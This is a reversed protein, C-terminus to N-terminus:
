LGNEFVDRPIKIRKNDNKLSQPDPKLLLNSIILMALWQLYSIKATFLEELLLDYVVKCILASILILLIASIIKILKEKM